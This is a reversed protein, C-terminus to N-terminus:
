LPTHNAVSSICLKYFLVFFDVDSPQICALGHYDVNDGEQYNIIGIDADAIEQYDAGVVKSSRAHM